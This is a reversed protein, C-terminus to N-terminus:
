GGGGSLPYTEITEYPPFRGESLNLGVFEIENITAMPLELHRNNELYEVLSGYGAQQIFHGLSVHPIFGEKDRNWVPVSSLECVRQNLEGFRGGDDVEAYVVGPFLNFQPFRVPFASVEDFVTELSTALEQEDEPSFDAKASPEEVVNGFVKVTIHLNRAPTPEFCDFDGLRNLLPRFADVVNDETLHALLVLHRSRGTGWQAVDEPTIPSLSLNNRREWFESEDTAVNEDPM